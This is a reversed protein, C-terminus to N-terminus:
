DMAEINERDPNWDDPRKTLGKLDWPMGDSVWKMRWQKYSFGKDDDTVGFEFGCSPCIENSAGGNVPHRPPSWLSPYTCVPCTYKEIKNM